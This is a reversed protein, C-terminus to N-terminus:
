SITFNVLKRKYTDNSQKDTPVIFSAQLYQTAAFVDIDSVEYNYINEGETILVEPLNTLKSGDSTRYAKLMLNMFPNVLCVIDTNCFCVGENGSNIKTLGNETKVLLWKGSSDFSSRMQVAFVSEDFFYERIKTYKQQGTATGVDYKYPM